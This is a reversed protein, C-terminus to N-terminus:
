EAPVAIERPLILAAVIILLCLTGFAHLMTVFGGQEYLWAVLGVSAGAATFGIFYRVAYARSRWKDSTYKGVMADNVTVQGFAGMVIGISALILPLNSLTAALYLFPALLLSLPLSVAKLSYRDILKGVNYQTMAGFVYVGAAIIGLLAPSATLDSLREAFLKPLAVTVANFTTSAALVVILLSLIVRWMDGKAIRAQAAAQRHSSRDEHVVTRMFALGILLTVIGPLIFAWRWGLFQGVVGTVLASSAVGFNGWVGNIGMERGLRDAYSVIMATGVPHYISAFIGIALLAAGLQLPTQVFGVAVMSAGIGIFFVVMMHRRSWRDGLWGTLLSGAGFAVFGPTAYPLLEAYAMGLAPGMVIVAAAFILMAYHDIFHAANVFGIVRSASNM